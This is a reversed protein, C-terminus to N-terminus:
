GRFGMDDVQISLSRGVVRGRGRLESTMLESVASAISTFRGCSWVGDILRLFLAPSAQTRLRKRLYIGTVKTRDAAGKVSVYTPTRTLGSM